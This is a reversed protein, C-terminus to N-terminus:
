TIEILISDIVINKSDLLDVKILKNKYDIIYILHLNNQNTIFYYDKNCYFVCGDFNNEGKNLIKISCYSSFYSEYINKHFAFDNSCDLTVIILNIDDKSASTVLTRRAKKTFGTKGGTCYQYNKILRNKNEYKGYTKCGTIKAFTANEMCYSYLIAMDLSTSVNGNDMEDLGHPNSFLTNKLNLENAKKNMLTVFEDISKSVSLALTVAADNGSRLLLGYLLEEISIQENVKLYMSSGYVKTIENPVIVVKNIDINEITLIATMIKSISAVSRAQNYNNGQLTKNTSQEIVIYSVGSFGSVIKENNKCSSFSFLLLFIILVKKM